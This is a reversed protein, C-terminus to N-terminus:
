TSQPRVPLYRMLTSSLSELSVASRRSLTSGKKTAERSRQLPMKARLQVEGPCREIFSVQGAPLEANLDLSFNGTGQEQFNVKKSMKVRELQRLCFRPPDFLPRLVADQGERFDGRLVDGRQTPIHGAQTNFSKVCM